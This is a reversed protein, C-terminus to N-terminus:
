FFINGSVSVRDESCNYFPYVIHNLASPFFLMCGELKKNMQYEYKDVSGTSNIYTFYFNSRTKSPSDANQENSETPVKMWIVFSYAGSHYHLPNYQGEKQYNVWWDFELGEIDKGYDFLTGYKRRYNDVLPCLTSYKFRDEVDNLLFSNDIDGVLNNKHSLGKNDICEWIYEIQDDHMNYELWGFTPPNVINLSGPKRDEFRLEENECNGCCGM